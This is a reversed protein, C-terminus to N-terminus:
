GHVPQLEGDLREDAAGADDPEVADPADAHLELHDDGQLRRAGHRGGVPRRLRPAQEADRRLCRRDPGHGHLVLPGAPHDRCWSLAREGQPQITNTTGTFRTVADNTVSERLITAPDQGVKPKVPITNFRVRAVTHVLGTPNNTWQYYNDARGKVLASLDRTAPHVRDLFEVDQSSVASATTTRTAGTLGLLTDFLPDGEELKATEGIGVFGGGGNVYNVLDSEQTDSLVDGASNVFVVARYGALNTANIQAADSTVDVTYDGATGAAQLATAATASAPNATGATGTFVLVKGANGMAPAALAGSVAFAAFVSLAARGARARSSVPQGDPPTVAKRMRM